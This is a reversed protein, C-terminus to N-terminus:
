RKSPVHRRYFLGFNSLTPCLRSATFRIRVRDTTVDDFRLLRKYGIATSRAFEEWIGNKWAEVVFSEVRQGQQIAEQLMLTNFTKKEDLHIEITASTTGDNPMWYSDKDGDLINQAAYRLGGDRIESAAAQADLALNEKFTVELVQGMERLRRADNEHILGRRDPPFNLLFVANGGVAGYYIDLLEDLSKVKDDEAPDYFWSPRISTNVEAPFWALRSAKLIKDRSGLDMLHGDEMMREFAPDAEERFDGEPLMPIVSWESDRAKGAENGCWRVDPGCIAIVADPQLRHVVRYYADWDYVQRKGNPGEGCAGDFWVETIEGYNTLLEELQNTFYQNYAPSDGYTPEHRDWPSLYIGLRMGAKRCSAALNAVVDGKGEKWPSNKVSHKTYRSPWLCFGDHHKATLIIIKMGADRCVRVWQDTDLQTPSFVAPDEKGTGWQRGTFTNPGFHIFAIFELEQWALQRESPTIRAARAIKDNLSAKESASLPRLKDSSDCCYFIGVLVMGIFLFFLHYRGSINFMRKDLERLKEKM